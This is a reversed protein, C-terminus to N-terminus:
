SEYSKGKGSNLNVGITVAGMNTVVKGLKHLELLGKLYTTYENPLMNGKLKNCVMCCCVMNSTSSNGGRSLPIKHDITLLLKNKCECYHCTYKDRKKIQEKAAYDLTLVM